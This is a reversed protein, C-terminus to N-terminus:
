TMRLSRASNTCQTVRSLTSGSPALSAACLWASRSRPSAKALSSPIALRARAQCISSFPSDSTLWAGFGAIAASITSTRM